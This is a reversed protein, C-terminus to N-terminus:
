PAALISNVQSAASQLAQAPQAKGLLVAQVAQGIATSIKPYLPTM